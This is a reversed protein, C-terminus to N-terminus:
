KRPSIHAHLPNKMVITFEQKESLDVENGDVVTWEFKWILNAVFYELHLLALGLGPCIRRGAGFPMMKIERSGFGTIYFEEHDIDRDMVMGMFREPKFQLPDDWVESDKGIEAVAFNLSANKPITYGGVQTVGHPLVFHGPPHRRLGELVVAKLYPMKSLAVEPVEEAEEGIVGRIEEFLKAQINPHRVLNAMIWELTTSTTDTGANLFEFCLSVLEEETLRRTGATSNENSSPIELKLLTDVYCTSLTTSQNLNFFENWRKRFLIRTLWAQRLNLVRFRSLLSTLLEQLVAEIEKIQSEEMKDGFCMVALTITHQNSSLIKPILLPEPRDAFLAGKQVLAQYALARNFIFIVLRAPNSSLTVIPGFKSTLTRLATQSEAFSKREACIVVSNESKREEEVPPMYNPDEHISSDEPLETEVWSIWDVESDVEEDDSPYDRVKQINNVKEILTALMNHNLAEYDRYTVFAYLLQIVAYAGLLSKVITRLRTKKEIEISTFQLIGCEITFATCLRCRVSYTQKTSTFMYFVVILLSYIFFAKILRSELLMSNHLAFLKDIATFMNAQKSEFTEQAELMSKSNSALLNHAQLLQEQQEKLERHQGQAFGVMQQLTARSEQLAKSQFDTLSQLGQLAESQSALLLQQKEISLGAMDAIDNAKGQLNHLKLSLAAGLSTVEKEVESAKKQLVEIDQRLHSYSEEVRAISEEMKEKMLGQVELLEVQSLAIGRAQENLEKTHKMVIGLDGLMNKLNDGVKQTQEDISTISEQIQNSNYLLTDSKEEITELKEETSLASNKLDNVLSEVQLKFAKSWSVKRTVHLFLIGGPIEKSVIVLFGILWALRSRKEEAAFIESCSSFLNKYAYFWCPNSGGLKMRANEILEVAKPDDLAELSFEAVMCNINNANKSYQHNNSSSSSTKSSSFWGWSFSHGKSSFALFMLLIYVCIRRNGM